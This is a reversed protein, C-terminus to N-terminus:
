TGCQVFYRATILLIDSISRNQSSVILKISVPAKLAEAIEQANASVSGKRTRITRIAESLSPQRGHGRTPGKVHGNSWAIHHDKKYQWRDNHLNGNHNPLKGPSSLRPVPKESHGEEPHPVLYESPTSDEFDPFKVTEGQSSASSFRREAGAGNM